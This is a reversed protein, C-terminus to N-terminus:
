TQSCSSASIVVLLLALGVVSRICSMIAGTTVRAPKHGRGGRSSIRMMAPQSQPPLEARFVGAKAVAVHVIVRGPVIEDDGVVVALSKAPHRM